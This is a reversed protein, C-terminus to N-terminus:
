RVNGDEVRTFSVSERRIDRADSGQEEKSTDSVDLRWSEDRNIKAQRRREAEEAGAAGAAIRDVESRWSGDENLGAWRPTEASCIPGRTKGGVGASENPRAPSGPTRPPLAPPAPSSPARPHGNDAFVDVSAPQVIALVEKGDPLGEKGTERGGSSGPQGAGRKSEHADAVADGSAQVTTESPQQIVGDRSEGTLTVGRGEMGGMIKVDTDGALPVCQSNPLPVDVVGSTGGDANVSTRTSSAPNEHASASAPMHPEQSAGTSRYGDTTGGTSSMPQQQSNSDFAGNGGSKRIWVISDDKAMDISDCSQSTEFFNGCPSQKPTSDLCSSSGSRRLRMGGNGESFDSACSKATGFIRALMDVDPVPRGTSSYGASSYGASPHDIESPLLDHRSHPSRFFGSLRRVQTREGSDVGDPVCGTSARGTSSCNSVFDSASSVFGGLQIAGGRSDFMRRTKGFSGGGSAFDTANTPPSASSPGAVNKDSGHNRHRFSATGSELPLKDAEEDEDSGEDDRDVDLGSDGARGATGGPGRKRDDDDDGADGGQGGGGRSDGAGGGSGGLTSSEGSSRDGGGNGGRDRGAGNNTGSSDDQGACSVVPPKGNGVDLSNSSLTERVHVGDGSMGPVRLPPHAQLESPTPDRVLSLSDGSSKETNGSSGESPKGGSDQMKPQKQEQQQPLRRKLSHPLERSSPACSKEDTNQQEGDGVTNDGVPGLRPPLGGSPSMRVSPPSVVVVPPKRQNPSTRRSGTSGTGGSLRRTPSRRARGSGVSGRSRRRPQWKDQHGPGHGSTSGTERSGIGIWSSPGSSMMSSDLLQLDAVKEHVAAGRKPPSYSLM